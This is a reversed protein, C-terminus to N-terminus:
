ITIVVSLPPSLTKSVHNPSAAYKSFEQHSSSNNLSINSTTVRNKLICPPIATSQLLSVTTYMSCLWVRERDLCKSLFRELKEVKDQCVCCHGLPEECSRGLGFANKHSEKYEPSAKNWLIQYERIQYKQYTM